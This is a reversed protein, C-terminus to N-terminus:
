GLTKRMTRHPIGTLESVFTGSTFEYGLREYFAFATDRAHLWVETAGQEAARDELARMLAGGVGLAQSGPIVAVQRVQRSADGAAPLLRAAGLLEGDDAVAVAVESGPVEHRWDHEREVGFDHYLVEFLLWELDSDRGWGEEAFEIRFGAL